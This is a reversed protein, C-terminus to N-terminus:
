KGWGVSAGLILARPKYTGNYNNLNALGTSRNRFTVLLAYLDTRFGSDAQYGVGVSAGIRDTDSVLPSMAWSPQPTGDYYVGGRLRYEDMAYEVGLRVASANTWREVGYVSREPNKALVLAVTDFTSWRTWNFDLEAKLSSSLRAEVGALLMLPFHVLVSADQNKPLLSAITSDESRNGTTFAGYSFVAPATFDNSSGTRVTLGAKINGTPLLQVGFTGALKKERASEVSVQGVEPALDTGPIPAAIARTLLVKSFTLNLAAGLRLKPTVEVGVAAAADIQEVRTRWADFRGSFKANNTWDTELGFPAFVGVAGTVGRVLRHSLYMSPLLFTKLDTKETVGYGPFPAVGAFSDDFLILSPSLSLRTGPLGALAAPNYFLASPDDVGAACAGGRGIAAAGQEFLSFGASHAPRAALLVALALCAAVAVSPYSPGPTGVPRRPRL